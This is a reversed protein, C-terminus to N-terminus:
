IFEQVVDPLDELDDEVVRARNWRPVDALLHSVAEKGSKIIRLGGYNISDIGNTLERGGPDRAIELWPENTRSHVATKDNARSGAVHRAIIYALTVFPVIFGIAATPQITIGWADFAFTALSVMIMSVMGWRQNTTLGFVSVLGAMGLATFGSFLVTSDLSTIPVDLFQQMGTNLGLFAFTLRAIAQALNLGIVFILTTKIEM